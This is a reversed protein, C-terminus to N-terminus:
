SLNDALEELMNESANAKKKKEDNLMNVYEKYIIHIYRVPMRELEGMTTCGKLYKTLNM